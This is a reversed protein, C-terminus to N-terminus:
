THSSSAALRPTGRIHVNRPTNQPRYKWHHADCVSLSTRNRSYSGLHVHGLFLPASIYKKLGKFALTTLRQLANHSKYHWCQTGTHSVMEARESQKCGFAPMCFCAMHDFTKTGSLLTEWCATRTGRPTRSRISNPSFLVVEMTPRFITTWHKTSLTWIGTLLLEM